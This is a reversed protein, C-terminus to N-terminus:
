PKKEGNSGERYWSNRQHQRRFERLACRQPFDPHSLYRQAGKLFSTVLNRFVADKQNGDVFNRERRQEYRIYDGCSAKFAHMGDQGRKGDDTPLCDVPINIKAVLKVLWRDGALQCSQDHLELVLGNELLITQVPSGNTM